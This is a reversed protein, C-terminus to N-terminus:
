IATFLLIYLKFINSLIIAHKPSRYIVKKITSNSILWFTTINLDIDSIETQFQPRSVYCKDMVVLMDDKDTNFIQRFSLKNFMRWFKLLFWRSKLSYNTLVRQFCWRSQDWCCFKGRWRRQNSGFEWCYKQLLPFHFTRTLYYRINLM